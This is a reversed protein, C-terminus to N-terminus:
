HFYNRRLLPEHSGFAAFADDRAGQNSKRKRDRLSGSAYYGTAVLCGIGAILWYHTEASGESDATFEAPALEPVETLPDVAGTTVWCTTGAM